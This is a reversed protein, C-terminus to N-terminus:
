VQVVEGNMVNGDFCLFNNTPENKKSIAKIVEQGMTGGIIANVPSLEAFDM